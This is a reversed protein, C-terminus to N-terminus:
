DQEVRVLEKVPQTVTQGSMYVWRVRLEPELLLKKAMTVVLYKLNRKANNMYGETPGTM